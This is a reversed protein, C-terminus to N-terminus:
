TFHNHNGTVNEGKGGEHTRAFYMDVGEITKNLYGQLNQFNPTNQAVYPLESQPSIYAANIFDKALLDQQIAEVSKSEVQPIYFYRELQMVVDTRKREVKTEPLLPVFLLKKTKSYTLLKPIDELRKVQVMLDVGYAFLLSILALVIFVRM